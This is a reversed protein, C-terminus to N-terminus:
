LIFWFRINLLNNKELWKKKLIKKKKCYPIGSINTESNTKKISLWILNVFLPPDCHSLGALFSENRQHSIQRKKKNRM